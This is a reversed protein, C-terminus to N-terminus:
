KSAIQGSRFTEVDSVLFRWFRGYKIAKLKGKRALVDVKDPSCDLIHAVQNSKILNGNAAM